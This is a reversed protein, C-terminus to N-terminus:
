IPPQYRQHRAPAPQHIRQSNLLFDTIRAWMEPANSYMPFHASHPIEALEVGNGALTPLYSLANNQEGYMFMTPVPLALFGRMLDAHDSLQVMSEFIPRVAGARVKHSLTAAFLASASYRSRWMRDAFEALFEQPDQHAHTVVQRSL